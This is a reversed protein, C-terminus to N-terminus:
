EYERGKRRYYMFGVVIAAFIGTSGVIVPVQEETIGLQELISENGGLEIGIGMKKKKIKLDVKNNNPCSNLPFDGKEIVVMCGEWDKELDSPTGIRFNCNKGSDGAEIDVECDGDINQFGSPWSSSGMNKEILHIQYIIEGEDNSECNISASISIEEGSDFSGGGQGIEAQCSMYQIINVIVSDSDSSAFLPQPIGNVESVTATINVLIEGPAQDVDSQLIVEFSTSSGAGITLSDPAAAALPGSVIQIDITESFLSPNEVTCDVIATRTQGPGPNIEVEDDCEIIVEPLVQASAPSVFSALLFIMCIIGVVKTMNCRPHVIM